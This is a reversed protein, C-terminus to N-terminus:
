PSAEKTNFNVTGESIGKCLTLVFDDVSEQSRKTSEMMYDNYKKEFKASRMFSWLLSEFEALLYRPIILGNIYEPTKEDSIKLIETMRKIDKELDM